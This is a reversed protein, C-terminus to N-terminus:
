PGPTGGGPVLPRDRPDAKPVVGEDGPFVKGNKRQAEDEKLLAVADGPACPAVAGVRYRGDSADTDFTARLVLGGEAFVTPSTSQNVIRVTMGLSEWYDAVLRADGTRDAGRPAELGYNYGAGTRGEGLACSGPTAVGDRPSWGPLHTQATTSKVFEVMRDRGEQPTMKEEEQACSVSSLGAATLVAISAAIRRGQGLRTTGM